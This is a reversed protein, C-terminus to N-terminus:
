KVPFLLGNQFSFSLSREDSWTVGDVSIAMIVQFDDGSAVEENLAENSLPSLPGTLFFEYAQENHGLKQKELPALEIVNEALSLKGLKLKGAEEIRVYVQLPSKGSVNLASFNVFVHKRSHDIPPSGGATMVDAELSWIAQPVERTTVQIKMIKPKTEFEKPQNLYFKSLTAKARAYRDAPPFHPGAKFTKNNMLGYAAKLKLSAKSQPQASLTVKRSVEDRDVLHLLAATLQEPHDTDLLDRFGQLLEEPTDLIKLARLAAIAKAAAHVSDWQPYRVNILRLPYSFFAKYWNAQFGYSARGEASGWVDKDMGFALAFATWMQDDSSHIITQLQDKTFYLGAQASFTGLYTPTVHIRSVQERPSAFFNEQRWTAEKSAEREPFVPLGDMPLATFFRLTDLYAVLSLTDVYRDQINLTLQLHYPNPGLEFAYNISKGSEDPKSLVKSVKMEVTQQTRIQREGVLLNWDKDEVNLTSELIHFKGEQDTIEIMSDDLTRRRENRYFALNPGNTSIDERRNQERNFLFKVGTVLKKEKQDLYREHAPAFDGRVAARYAEQAAPQRLDFEYVQDFLRALAHEIQINIPLIPAPVGIWQFTKGFAQAALAGHLLLYRQGLFASIGHGTRDINNVGVWATDEDRRLVNIRHEGTKFVSYPLGETVGGIRALLDLSSKDVFGGIDPTVRVGGSLAYTRISGVPMTRFGDVSLPFSFPTQLEKIPDYLHNQNFSPPLIATLAPVLGFWNNALRRMTSMEREQAVRMGDTRLYIQEAEISGDVGLTVPVDQMHWLPREYRPGFSFRDIVVYAGAPTSYLKRTLAMNFWAFDNIHLESKNDMLAYFLSDMLTEVSRNLEDIGGALNAQMAPNQFFLEIPPAYFIDGENEKLAKEQEEKEVEPGAFDIQVLPDNSSSKDAASPAKTAANTEPGKAEAAFGPQVLQVYIAMAAFLRRM